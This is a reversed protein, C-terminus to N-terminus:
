RGDEVVVLSISFELVYGCSGSEVLESVGDRHNGKVIVVVAVEIQHKGVIELRDVQQIQFIRMHKWVIQVISGIAPSDRQPVVRAFSCKLLRSVFCAESFDRSPREIKTMAVEVVVAQLVNVNGAVVAGIMNKEVVAVARKAFDCFFGGAPVGLLT